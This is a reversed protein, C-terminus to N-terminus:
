QTGVIHWFCHWTKQYWGDVQDSSEFLGCTLLVFVCALQAICLSSLQPHIVSIRTHLVNELTKFHVKWM